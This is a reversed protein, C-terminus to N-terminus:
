PVGPNTEMNIVAQWKRRNHALNIWDVGNWVMEKLYMTNNQGRNRKRGLPRKGETKWMLVRYAYIKKVMLKVHGAWKMVLSKIERIINPQFFSKYPKENHLKRNRGTLKKGRLGL